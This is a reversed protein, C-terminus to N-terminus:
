DTVVHKRAKLEKDKDRLVISPVIKSGYPIVGGFYNPDFTYIESKFGFWKFFEIQTNKTERDLAM